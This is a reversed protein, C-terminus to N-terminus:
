LFRDSYYFFWAFCFLVTPIMIGRVFEDLRRKNAFFTPVLNISIVFLLLTSEKFGSWIMHSNGILKTIIDDKVLWHDLFIFSPYALLPLILGMVFGYIFKNKLM